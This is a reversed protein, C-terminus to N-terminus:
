SHYAQTATGPDRAAMKNEEFLTWWAKGGPQGPELQLKCHAGGINTVIENAKDCQAQKLQHDTVKIQKQGTEKSSLDAQMHIPTIWTPTLTRSGESRLPLTPWIELNNTVHEKRKTGVPEETVKRTNITSNGGSVVAKTSLSAINGGTELNKPTVMRIAELNRGEMFNNDEEILQKTAKSPRGQARGM